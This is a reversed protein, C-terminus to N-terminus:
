RLVEAILNPYDTIIGDVGKRRMKKMAKVSNVTWPVVRVGLKHLKKIHKRCLLKYYPSYIDPTFGLATLNADVSKINEVLLAITVDPAQKKVAQISRVDFSQICTVERIGLKDVEALLIKAFEGPKPHSIDDGKPQSKIEINYFPMAQGKKLCYANVAEVVNALSPKHVAMKEQNPFRENGRQGCDYKKIEEYTMEYIRLQMAEAKTVPTGDPKSCIHHSMWPDHSVIIKGDKSVAVDLELTSVEPYELAKLFAPVTNEPMLGRCGRHGQWDFEPTSKNQANMGTFTFFFLLLILTSTKQLFNMILTKCFTLAAFTLYPM